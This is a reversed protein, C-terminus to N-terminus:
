PKPPNINEDESDSAYEDDSSTAIKWTYMSRGYHNMNYVCTRCMTDMSHFIWM